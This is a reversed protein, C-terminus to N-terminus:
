PQPSATVAGRRYVLITKDMAREVTDLRSGPPLLKTVRRLERPSLVCFQTATTDLLRTIASDTSIIPIPHDSWYPHPRPAVVIIPQDTYFHIGRAYIPSCLVSQNQMGCKAAAAPVDAQTLGGELLPFIIISSLIVLVGVSAATAIVADRIRRFILLVGAALVFVAGAAIPVSVIKPLGAKEPAILAGAVLAAASAILLGAGALQRWRAISQQALGMAVLVALAPYAPSVYTALKSQAISFSLVITLFWIVMFRFLPRSGRDPRSLFPLFATWPIFFLCIMVPYFYWHNFSPHEAGVLRDWHDHVFFEGILLKGNTVYAYIYWPLGIVLYPLWWRGLLFRRISRGDRAIALHITVAVAPLALGLPGKTLTALAAALGFMTLWKKERTEIWCYAAYLGAMILVAFMMDTLVVRALGVWWITTALILGGYRATRENSFRRLFLYTLIVALTAFLVNVLRASWANTGLGEFAAMLFWYYLPPKEFQPQDFLLPTLFSKHVLMERATAAYFADDPDFLSVAGNGTVYLIGCLAVFFAVAAVLRKRDDSM